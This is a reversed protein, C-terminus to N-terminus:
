QELEMRAAKWQQEAASGNVVIESLSFPLAKTLGASQELKQRQYFWYSRGKSGRLNKESVLLQM